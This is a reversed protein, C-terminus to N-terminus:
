KCLSLVLATLVSEPERDESKLSLDARLIESHCRLCEAEPFRRLAAFFSDAFYPSVRLKQAVEDGSVGKSLLLNARILRNITWRLVNIIQEQIRTTDHEVTQNRQLAGQMVIEILLGVATKADKREVANALSFLDRPRGRAVISEIKEREIVPSDASVSALKELEAALLSLDGGVFEVILRADEARLKKGHERQARAILWTPVEKEPLPSCTKVIRAAQAAKGFSTRRDLRDLDIVLCSFASPSDLYKKFLEGDQGLLTEANRLIVLKGGRFLPYTRVEDLVSATSVQNGDFESVEVNSHQSGLFARLSSIEEDKLFKEEGELVVLPTIKETV